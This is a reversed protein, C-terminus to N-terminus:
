FVGVFAGCWLDDGPDETDRPGIGRNLVHFLIKLSYTCM